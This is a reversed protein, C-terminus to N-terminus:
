RVMLFERGVVDMGVDKSEYETVPVYTVGVIGGVDKVNRNQSAHIICDPKKSCIAMYCLVAITIHKM